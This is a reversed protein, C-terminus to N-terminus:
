HHSSNLRTSKRDGAVLEPTYGIFWADTAAQTTGTKGAVPRALVRARSGTGREVVGKLVNTLIFATEERMVRQGVPVHEELLAERSDVVKRISYPLFRIGSHAFVGFASVM